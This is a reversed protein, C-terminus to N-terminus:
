GRIFDVGWDSPHFTPDIFLDKKWINTRNQNSKNTMKQKQWAM